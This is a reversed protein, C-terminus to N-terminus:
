LRKIIESERFRFFAVVWFFLTFFVLISTLIPLVTSPSANPFTSDFYANMMNGFRDFDKFVIKVMWQNLYSFLAVIAIVASFTKVFSFKEWFTAGLISLSQLLAYISICVGFIYKDPFVYIRNDEMGPNVLRSFDLFQIDIEPFKYSLFAVRVADALWLAIFFAIIYGVTVILWRSFFKEFDSAPLILCSIRKTKEQMNEMLTSAFFVGFGLFLFSAYTLLQYNEFEVYINHPTNSYDSYISMILIVAMLGFMAMFQLLYKKWKEQFDKSLVLGFRKINFFNNM